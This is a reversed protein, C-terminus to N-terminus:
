FNYNSSISIPHMVNERTIARRVIKREHILEFASILDDPADDKKNAHKGAFGFFQALFMAGEESQGFLPPFLIDGAEYAAQLNKALDDVRYRKYEIHPYPANNIRCWNRVNNSWTSEQSVNGDFGITAINKFDGKLRLVDNLLMNSDSYSKCRAAGIYYKLTEASYLLAVISTTDGRGKKSLNPDCFVIGKADKPLRDYEQYHSRKFLMGEPPVPNQMFNAQWDAEDKPQLIKILESETDAKYRSHWLPRGKDWAAWSYVRWNPALLGHEQEIKLRHLASRRDFDNGLILFTGKDTHLSKITEAIKRVRQEVPETAMSSELTEVDDGIILQPRGFLRTFGRVSRGESFTACYRWKSITGKATTRFKFQDSNSEAFEPKYDYKLRENENILTFIDNLINWAKPLTEAYVGAITLRGTMLLWVLGKKATVTKGHERPGFNVHVGPETLQGVISKLMRNPAFWGAEYMDVPFYLKDFAWFNDKVAAIRKLRAKETREQDSWPLSQQLSAKLDAESAFGDMLINLKSFDEM